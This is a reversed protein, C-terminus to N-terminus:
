DVQVATVTVVINDLMGSYAADNKDAPWELNFTVDAPDAGPALTGTLNTGTVELPLNNTTNEVSVTYRVAVESGNSVSLTKNQSDGPNMKVNFTVADTFGNGTVRFKAIRGTDNSASKTTYRAFMGSMLSMSVLTLCLLILAAILFVNRKPANTKAM